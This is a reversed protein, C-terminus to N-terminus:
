KLNQNVKIKKQNQAVEVMYAADRNIMDDVSIGWVAAKKTVAALWKPNQLISAAYFKLLDNYRKNAELDTADEIGLWSIAKDPFHMCGGLNVEALIFILVQHRLIEKGILRVSDRSLDKYKSIPYMREGYFWFDNGSFASGWPYIGYIGWFFSDGITLIRYPYRSSDPDERFVPYPIAEGSQVSILNMLEYLDYDSGKLSETYDVRLPKIPQYSKGLAHLIFSLLTDPVLTQCAITTWHIGYKPFLPYETSDKIRIFYENLDLFSIEPHQQFQKVFMDYNSIGRNKIAQDPLFEPYVRSKNPVFVVIFNKGASTLFDNIRKLKNVQDAIAQEGIYDRGTYANVFNPTYLYGEKGVVVDPIPSIRFLTYALQNNLRVLSAHFGTHYDVCPTFAPQFSGSFWNEVSFKEYEPPTIGVLKSEPIKFVLQAPSALLLIMVLGLLSSPIIKAIRKM